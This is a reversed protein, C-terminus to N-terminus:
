NFRLKNKFVPKGKPKPGPMVTKAPPRASAPKFNGLIRIKLNKKTSSKEIDLPNVKL